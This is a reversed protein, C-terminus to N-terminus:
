NEIGPPSPGNSVGLWNKMGPPSSDNGVGLWREICPPSPDCGVGLWREPSSGSGVGVWREIRVRVDEGCASTTACRWPDSPRTRSTRSLRVRSTWAGSTWFLTLSCLMYASMIAGM